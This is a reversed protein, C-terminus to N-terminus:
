HLLNSFQRSTHALAVSEITDDVIQYVLIYHTHVVLEYTSPLRGKKGAKPFELLREASQGFLLDMELAADINDEAIYNIISDRMNEAHKTWVLKM